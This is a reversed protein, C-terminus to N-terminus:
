RLDPHLVCAARFLLLSVGRQLERRLALAVDLRREWDEARHFYPAYRDRVSPYLADHLEMWFSRRM